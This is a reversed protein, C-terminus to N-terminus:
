QLFEKSQMTMAPTGAPAYAQKRTQVTHLPEYNPGVDRFCYSLLIRGLGASHTHLVAAPCVGNIYVACAHSKVSTNSSNSFFALEKSSSLLCRLASCQHTLESPGLVGAACCAHSCSIANSM